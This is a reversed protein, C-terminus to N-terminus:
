KRRRRRNGRQAAKEDAQLKQYDAQQQYNLVSALTKQLNDTAPATTSATGAAGGGNGGGPGGPGGGGLGGGGPGGGGTGGGGQGGPGNGGRGMETWLVPADIERRAQNDADM